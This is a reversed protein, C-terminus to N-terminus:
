TPYVLLFLWEAIMAPKEEGEIEIRNETKVVFRGEGRDEIDILQTHNRIRKGVKVPAMLRVRDFGYNMNAAVFSVVYEPRPPLVTAIRDGKEVGLGLFAEALRDTREDLERYTVVEDGFRLATEDPLSRAWHEVYHWFFDKTSM